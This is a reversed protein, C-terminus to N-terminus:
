AGGEIRRLLKQAAAMADTYTQPMRTAAGPNQVLIGLLLACSSLVAVLEDGSERIRRSREGAAKYREMAEKQDRSLTDFGAREVDVPATPVPETSPEHADDIRYVCPFGNPASV